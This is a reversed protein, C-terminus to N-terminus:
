QFFFRSEVLNNVKMNHICIEIAIYDDNTTFSYLVNYFFINKHFQSKKEDFTLM